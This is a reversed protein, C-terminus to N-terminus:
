LLDITDIRLVTLRTRRSQASSQPIPPHKQAFCLCILDLHGHPQRLSQCIATQLRSIQCSMSSCPKTPPGRAKTEANTLTARVPNTAHGNFEQEIHLFSLCLAVHYSQWLQSAEYQYPRPRREYSCQSGPLLGSCRSM